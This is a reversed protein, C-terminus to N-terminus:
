KISEMLERVVKADDFEITRDRLIQEEEHGKGAIILIDKPGKMKLAEAIASRRDEVVRYRDKEMGAEIDRIISRPSETRPNDSTVYAYDAHRSVAQGMLPRKGPDRDGGCGFVVIIRDATYLRLTALVHELARPTHAFDVFINPAVPELRGRVSELSEIGRLITEPEFGLAWGGCFAALINYGNYDGVLRSRVEYVRDPGSIELKLGALSHERVRASFPGPAIMSFRIEKKFKRARLEEGTPDDANYVAWGDPDLLSFLRFKDAKYAAMTKHFDLHDQSLNTFLAVQFRIQEVRNLALAHSSVEMIVDRSGEEHFRRFLKFLDLSEPTTRAAKVRERGLYYITGILGPNRGAARGIAHLLFATTTKGNTGTIGTKRLDDFPGYFNRALIGMAARTDEYVVQPRDTETIRAVIVAVAGRKVAVPIFEHGDFKEGTLAIFAVGETVRRSDFELGRVEVDRFNHAQGGTGAILESLRM